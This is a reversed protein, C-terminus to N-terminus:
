TKGFRGGEVSLTDAHNSTQFYNQGHAEEQSQGFLLQKCMHFLEVFSCAPGNWNFGLERLLAKVNGIEIFLGSKKLFGQIESSSVVNRMSQKSLGLSDAISNRNKYIESAIMMIKMRGIEPVNTMRSNKTVASMPRKAVSGHKAESHRDFMDKNKETLEGGLNWSRKKLDEPRMSGYRQLQGKASQLRYEGYDTGPKTLLEQVSINLNSKLWSEADGTLRM